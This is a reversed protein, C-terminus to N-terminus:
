KKIIIQFLCLFRMTTLFYLDWIGVSSHGWRLPGRSSSYYRPNVPSRPQHRTQGYYNQRITRSTESHPSVGAFPKKKLPSGQTRGKQFGKGRSSKKSSGFFGGKRVYGSRNSGWSMRSSGTRSSRFSSRSGSSFSRSFGGGRRAWLMEQPTLSIVLHIIIFCRVIKNTFHDM